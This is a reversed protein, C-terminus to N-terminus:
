IMIFCFRYWWKINDFTSQFHLHNFFIHNSVQHVINLYFNGNSFQVIIPSNVKKAAELVANVSSTSVVNVAPLAFGEEKAVKFVKQLDEGTVVGAKVVDLVKTAM